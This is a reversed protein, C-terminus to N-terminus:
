DEKSHVDIHTNIVQDFVDRPNEICVYPISFEKCCQRVIPSIEKLKHNSLSPFLHHEIQYNIGGMYRTFLSYESMYNGSHRVQMEGWDTGEKQEEVQQHTEYMDHDPATGILYLINLGLIYLYLYIPGVHYIYMSIYTISVMYQIIDGLSGFSDPLSM